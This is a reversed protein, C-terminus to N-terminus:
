VKQNKLFDWTDPETVPVVPKKLFDWKSPESVPTQRRPLPAPLAPALVSALPPTPAVPFTRRPYVDSFNGYTRAYNSTTCVARHRIFIETQEARTEDQNRLGTDRGFNTAIAGLIWFFVTPILLLIGLWAAGFCFCILAPVFFFMMLCGFVEGPGDAMSQNRDTDITVRM